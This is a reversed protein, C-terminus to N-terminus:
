DHDDAIRALHLDCASPQRPLTVTLPGLAADWSVDRPYLVQVDRPAGRLHPV